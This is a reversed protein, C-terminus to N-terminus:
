ERWTALTLIDVFMLRTFTFILIYMKINVNVDINLLAYNKGHSNGDNM